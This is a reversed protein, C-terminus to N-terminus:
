VEVLEKELEEDFEEVECMAPMKDIEFEFPEVDGGEDFEAIFERASSPMQYEAADIEIFM